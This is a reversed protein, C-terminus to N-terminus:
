KKVSFSKGLAKKMQQQIPVMVEVDITGRMYDDIMSKLLDSEAANTAFPRSRMKRTGFNVFVGYYVSTLNMLFSGISSKRSRTSKETTVSISDRLKGTKIARTPARQINLKALNKYTDAVQKLTPFSNAM